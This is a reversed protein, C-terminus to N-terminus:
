TNGAGQRQLHRRLVADVRAILEQPSFPKLLYDDAGQDLGTVRDSVATAATVFVVPVDVTRRIHELVDFGTADPLRVDLVVVDPPADAIAEFALAATAAEHVAAGELEFTTRILYRDSSSDDVVLLRAGSLSLRPDPPRPPSAQPPLSGLLARPADIADHAGAPRGLLYGQGGRVGLELLRALQAETEIGEAIVLTSVASAGAILGGVLKSRGVDHEVGRTVEQDLKIIDPDLQLVHRLSAFGAGVDDISIRVGRERIPRLAERLAGYDDIPAHETIELVLRASPADALVHAFRDALVTAPAVNVAVWVELPLTAVTAIARGIVACELDVGLGTAHAADFWVDPPAAPELGFRALAELGVVRRDHLDAVPQFALAPERVAIARRVDAADPRRRRDPARRRAHMRGPDVRRPRLLM